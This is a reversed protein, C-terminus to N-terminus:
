SRGGNYEIYSKDMNKLCKLRIFYLFYRGILGCHFRASMYRNFNIFGPNNKYRKYRYFMLRKEKM